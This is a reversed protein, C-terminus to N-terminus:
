PRSKSVLTGSDRHARHEAQDANRRARDTRHEARADRGDAPVSRCRPRGNRTSRICRRACREGDAISNCKDRDAQRTQALLILPAAYAAQALLRPELPHVSLRRIPDLRCRQDLDLGRRHDDSRDPVDAHRPNRSVGGEASGTTASYPFPHAHPLHFRRLHGSSAAEPVSMATERRGAGTWSAGGILSEVASSVSHRM